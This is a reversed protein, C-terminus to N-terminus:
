NAMETVVKRIGRAVDAFAEDQNPWSTVALGDKPLAILKGFPASHWDCARLIVPIVTATGAEHREMAHRVEISWCYNSNVFDASILLLILKASELHRDIEENFEQGALIRRDHWEEIVNQHKLLALHASLADRMMEDKHSYSCFLQIGNAASKVDNVPAQLPPLRAWEGAKLEVLKSIRQILRVAEFHREHFRKCAADLREAYNEYVEERKPDHRYESHVLEVGHIQDFTHWLAATDIHLRGDCLVSILETHGHLAKIRSRDSDDRLQVFYMFQALHHPWQKVMKLTASSDRGISELLELSTGYPLPTYEPDILEIRVKGSSFQPIDEETQGMMWHLPLTKMGNFNFARPGDQMM